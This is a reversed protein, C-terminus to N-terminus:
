NLRLCSLNNGVGDEDDDDGDSIYHVSEFQECWKGKTNTLLTAGM